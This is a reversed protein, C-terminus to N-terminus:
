SQSWTHISSNGEARLRYGKERCRLFYIILCISFTAQFKDIFAPLNIWYIPLSGYFQQGVKQLFSIPSLLPMPKEIAHKLKPVNKRWFLWHQFHAFDNIYGCRTAQRILFLHHVNKSMRERYSFISFVLKGEGESYGSDHDNDDRNNTITKNEVMEPM